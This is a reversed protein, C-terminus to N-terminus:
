AGRTLRVISWGEIVPVTCSLARGERHSVVVSSLPEYRGDRVGLVSAMVSWQSPDDVLVSLTVDRCRGARTGSQWSGDASGSLDLLSVAVCDDGRRVRVYLYGGVPEPGAVGDWTVTVSANEDTLEYWSTDVGSKFLDRSRLGFRHWMLVREVEDEDLNEHTVYYPHNLVGFRDGWLLANAGLTTVVAETLVVTLLATERDNGWVPPYIALTDGQWSGTGASRDLLGELHRWQDNPRWVEVYRFGPREPPKFGRPVGNVQNFSIVDDPRARRVSRVFEDYGRELQASQGMGDLANRPYGYTDLHLGDFGLVDLARGYGGIWHQQWETNAPDMIWLLTGLAEPAGDNRMLLWDPRAQAFQEDAACIPAYAQAVAGMRQVGDILGKLATRDIERGLPDQYFSSDALPASYRSMWDYVQVVSCRLRELWELVLPVSDWDFSTAFAMVPDDGPLDRISVVEEDIVAGDLSRAEVVHTGVPLDPSTAEYGEVVTKFVEGFATRVLVEAVKESLGTVVVPQGTLYVNRPTDFARSTM